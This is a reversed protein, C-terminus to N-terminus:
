SKENQHLVPTHRASLRVNRMQSYWRKCLKSHKRAPLFSSSFSYITLYLQCSVGDRCQWCKTRNYKSGWTGWCGCHAAIAAGNRRRRHRWHHTYIPCSRTTCLKNRALTRSAGASTWVTFYPAMCLRECQVSLNAHNGLLTM